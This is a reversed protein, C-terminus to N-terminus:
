IVRRVEFFRKLYYVQGFAMAALIFAEFCSWMVVRANTNDNISRHVRERVEMFEQEHKIDTLSASLESILEELKNHTVTVDEGNADNSLDLKPKDGIEISFMITKPTISSMKNNFCVTYIGDVHASFATKGSSERGGHYVEKQDPGTITIDIDLFGGEVVEFTFLLKTGSTLKEFFCEEAHADVVTYYGLTSKLLSLIILSLFILIRNSIM